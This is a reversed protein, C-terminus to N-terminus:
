CRSSVKFEVWFAFVLYCSVFFMLLVYISFTLAHKSSVVNLSPIPQNTTNMDIKSLIIKLRISIKIM